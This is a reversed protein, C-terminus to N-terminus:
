AAYVSGSKIGARNQISSPLVPKIDIQDKPKGTMTKSGKIPDLEPEHDDDNPAVSKSVVDPAIPSKEKDDDDVVKGDKQPFPNKKAKGTTDGKAKGAARKKQVLGKLKSAKDKSVDKGPDKKDLLVQKAEKIPKKPFIPVKTDMNMNVKEYGNRIWEDHKSQLIDASHLLEPDGSKWNLSHHHAQFGGHSLTFVKIMNGNKKTYLAHFRPRDAQDKRWRALRRKKFGFIEDLPEEDIDGHRKKRRRGIAAGIGLGAAAVGMAGIARATRFESPVHKIPAGAMSALGQDFADFPRGTLNQVNSMDVENHGGTNAGILGAVPIVAIKAIKKIRKGISPKPSDRMPRGRMDLGENKLKNQDSTLRGLEKSQRQDIGAKVDTFATGSAIPDTAIAKAAEEVEEESLHPIGPRENSVEAIPEESLKRKTSYGQQLMRKHYEPFASKAVVEQRHKRNGFITSTHHYVTYSGDKNEPESDYVISHSAHKLTHHKTYWM